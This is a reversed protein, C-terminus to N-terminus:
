NVRSSGESSSGGKFYAWALLAAVPLAFLSEKPARGSLVEAIGFIACGVYLLGLRLLIRRRYRSDAEARESEKWAGRMGVALFVSSITVAAIVLAIMVGPNDEVTVM